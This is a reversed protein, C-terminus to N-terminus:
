ESPILVFVCVSLHEVPSASSTVFVGSDNELNIYSYGNAAKSELQIHTVVRVGTLYQLFYFFFFINLNEM